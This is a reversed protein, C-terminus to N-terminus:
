KIESDIWIEYSNLDFPFTDTRNYKTENSYSILIFFILFNNPQDFLAESRSRGFAEMECPAANNCPIMECPSANNCPIMECPAANNCPIMDCPAANNCPIMECPAANNCPIM